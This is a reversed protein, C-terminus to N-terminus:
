ANREIKRVQSGKPKEFKRFKKNKRIEPFNAAKLYKRQEMKEWREKHFELFWLPSKEGYGICAKGGNQDSM